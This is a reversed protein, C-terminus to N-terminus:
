YQFYINNFHLSMTRTFYTKKLKIQIFLYACLQGNIRVNQANIHIHKKRNELQFWFYFAFKM